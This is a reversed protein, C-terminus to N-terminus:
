SGVVEVVAEVIVIDERSDIRLAGSTKSDGHCRFCSGVLVPRIKAEFFDDREDASAERTSPLLSTLLVITLCLTRNMIRVQTVAFNLGAGANRRPVRGSALALPQYTM